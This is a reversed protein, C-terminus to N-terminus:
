LQVEVPGAIEAEELTIRCRYAYAEVGAGVIERLTQGFAPDADDNPRFSVADARQVVFVAAARHGDSVARALSVLHKRGRATPADPFFATGDRVLTVSKAEIYCLRDPGKLLLDLRSEGLTVERRALQFGAFEPIAGREVAEAALRNPLTADVSVLTGDMDVLTLDYSTKRGKGDAPSLYVRRGEQLLERMRGTDTVHVMAEEGDQSLRVLAAFRNPRRLFRAEVLNGKRRMDDGAVM